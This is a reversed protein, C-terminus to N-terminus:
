DAKPATHGDIHGLKRDPWVVDRLLQKLIKAEPFGNDRKRDWILNDNVHITFIGGTRPRLIIEGIDTGFTQLIEQALWSARLMWNCQSCYTIIIIPAQNSMM